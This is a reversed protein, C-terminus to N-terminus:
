QQSFFSLKKGAREEDRSAQEENGGFREPVAVYGSTASSEAASGLLNFQSAVYGNRTRGFECLTTACRIPEFELSTALNTAASCM